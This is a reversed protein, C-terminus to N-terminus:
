KLWMYKDSLFHGKEVVKKKRGPADVKPLFVRDFLLYGM